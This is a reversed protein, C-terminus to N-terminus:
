PKFGIRPTSPIPEVLEKLVDLISQIDKDHGAYKRELAELRRSLEKSTWSLQRLRVFARMVQINVEVARRSRLVSSLMAVGYDTFVQPTRASHKQTKFRDCNTVLERTEAVTLRFCFGQPFRDHNRQVAQNLAKVPVGYLDALDRDIMVRVGRFIFLRDEIEKPTLANM